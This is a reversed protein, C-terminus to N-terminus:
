EFLFGPTTPHIGYTAMADTLCMEREHVVGKVFSTFTHVWSFVVMLPLVAGLVSALSDAIYFPIPMQQAFVPFQAMYTAAETTNGDSLAMGIFAKDLLDQLITFGSYYYAFWTYTGWSGGVEIRKEATPPSSGAPLRFSYAPNLRSLSGGKLKAGNTTSSSGSSDDDSEEFMIAGLLRNSAGAYSQQTDLEVSEAYAEETTPYGVFLDFDRFFSWLGPDEQITYTGDANVPIAHGSGGGGGSSANTAGGPNIDDPLHLFCSTAIPKSSTGDPFVVAVDLHDDRSVEISLAEIYYSEGAQLMIKNSRQEDSSDWKSTARTNECIKTKSEPTRDTGLFVVGCDDSMVVFTHLGTMTPVFLGACHRM